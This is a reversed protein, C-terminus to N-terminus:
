AAEIARDLNHGGTLSPTSEHELDRTSEPDGEAMDIEDQTPEYLMDVPLTITTAGSQAGGVHSVMDADSIINVFSESRTVNSGIGPANVASGTLNDPDIQVDPDKLVEKIAHAALNGGLSHGTVHIPVDPNDKIVQALYQTAQAGQDPPDGLGIQINDDWDNLEDTGRFTVLLSGDPASITEAYFGNTPPNPFITGDNSNQFSQFQNNPLSAGPNRYIYQNIRLIEEITAM